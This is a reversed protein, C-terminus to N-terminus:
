YELGRVWNATGAYVNPVMETFTLLYSDDFFDM